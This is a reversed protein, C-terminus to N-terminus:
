KPFNIQKFTKKNKLFYDIVISGDLMLKKIAEDSIKRRAQIEERKRFTKFAFIFPIAVLSRLLSITKVPFYRIAAIIELLMRFSAIRLLSLASYNKLLLLLHNRTLLYGKQLNLKQKKITFSGMHYIKSKPSFWIEKAYLNVRWCFDLEEAYMFFDEDFGGSNIFFKRDVLLCVGCGWFIQMENDYQGKDKEITDFIRGRCFPYGYIDILGGAAGAYEFEDRKYYSMVKSQVAVCNKHKNKTEILADLWGREVEVDNNLFVVNESKSEKAMINCAEAFGLTKKSNSVIAEPFEKEVMAKSGDSSNNLLLNVTFHKTNKYVSKLCKRLVDEGNLHVILIDTNNM